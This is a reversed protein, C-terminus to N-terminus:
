RLIDPDVEYNLMVLNRWEASLFVRRPPFQHETDGEATEMNSHSFKSRSTIERARSAQLHASACNTL